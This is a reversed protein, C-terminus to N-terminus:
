SRGRPEALGGMPYREAVKIM